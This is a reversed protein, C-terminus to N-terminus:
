ALPISVVSLEIQEQHSSFLLCITSFHWIDRPTLIPSASANAHASVNAGSYEHLLPANLDGMAGASFFYKSLVIFVVKRADMSTISDQNM